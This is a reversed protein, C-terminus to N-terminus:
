TTVYGKNRMCTVALLQEAQSQSFENSRQVARRQPASRWNWYADTDFAFPRWDAFLRMTEQMAERRCQRLDGDVLSQDVGPKQWGTATGCASSAVLAVIVLVKRMGITHDM